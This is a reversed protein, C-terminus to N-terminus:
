DYRYMRGVIGYSSFIRFNSDCCSLSQAIYRFQAKLQWSRHRQWFTTIKWVVLAACFNHPSDCHGHQSTVPRCRLFSFLHTLIRKRFILNQTCSHDSPGFLESDVTPPHVLPQNLQFDVIVTGDVSKQYPPQLSSISTEAHIISRPFYWCFIGFGIWFLTSGLLKRTSLSSASSVLVKRM